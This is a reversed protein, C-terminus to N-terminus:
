NVSYNLTVALESITGSIATTKIWIWSNAPISSTNITATTGATTTVAHSSIITGAMVSRNSGYEIQYTCSPTSSGQVAEDAENITIADKTFFMAYNDAGTPAPITINKTQPKSTPLTALSGDGRVYQTTDGTWGLALTGSSTVPSGSFNLAGSASAGVSTVGGGGGTGGTGAHYSIKHTTPNYNVVYGSSDDPLNLFRYDGQDQQFETYSPHINLFNNVAGIATFGVGTGYDSGDAQTSVDGYYSGWQSRNTSTAFISAIGTQFYSEYSSSNISRMSANSGTLNFVSKDSHLNFGWGAGLNFDRNEAATNDQKGFLSDTNGDANVIYHDSSTGTGTITVNTGPDIYTLGSSGKPVKLWKRGGVGQLVELPTVTCTPCLIYFSSDGKVFLGRAGGLYAKLDTTDNAHILDLTRYQATCGLVSFVLLISFLQKM